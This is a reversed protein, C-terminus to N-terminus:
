IKSCKEKTPCRLAANVRVHFSYVRLLLHPVDLLGVAKIDVGSPIHQSLFVNVCGLLNYIVSSVLITPLYVALSARM